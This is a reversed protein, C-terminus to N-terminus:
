VVRILGDLISRHELLGAIEEISWANNSHGTEIAPTAKLTQHVRCFNYYLFYISLM